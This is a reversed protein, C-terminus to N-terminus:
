LHISGIPGQSAHPIQWQMVPFQWTAFCAISIFAKDDLPLGPLYLNVNIGVDLPRGLM